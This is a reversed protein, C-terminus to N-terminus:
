LGFKLQHIILVQHLVQGVQKEIEQAEVVQVEVGTVVETPHTLHHIPHIHAIDEVDEVPLAILEEV